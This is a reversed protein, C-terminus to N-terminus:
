AKVPQDAIRWTGANRGKQSAFVGAAIQAEIYDECRQALRAHNAPNVGTLKAMAFSVIVSRSARIGKNENLFAEVAAGVVELDNALTSNYTEIAAFVAKLTLEPEVLGDKLVVSKNLDIM